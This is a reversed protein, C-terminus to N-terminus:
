VELRPGAANAAGALWEVQDTVKRRATEDDLQVFNRVLRFDPARSPRLTTPLQQGSSHNRRAAATALRDLGKVFAFAEAAYAFDRGAV